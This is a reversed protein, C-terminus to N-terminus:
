DVLKQLDMVVKVTVPWEPKWNREDKGSQRQYEGVPPCWAGTSGSKKRLQLCLKEAVSFDVDIAYFTHTACKKEPDWENAAVVDFLYQVPQMDVNKFHLAYKGSDSGRFFKTGDHKVNFPKQGNKAVGSKTYGIVRGPLLVGDMMEADTITTIYCDESRRKTYTGVRPIHAVGDRAIIDRITQINM